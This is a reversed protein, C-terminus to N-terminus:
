LEEDRGRGSVTKKIKESQQGTVESITDKATNATEYAKGKVESAMEEAANATEYTKEKAPNTIDITEGAKEKVAGVTKGAKEAATDKMENAKGAAERAKETAYQGTGSSTDKTNKAADSAKKITSDGDHEDHKLGIKEKAWETWSESGEKGGKEEVEVVKAKGTQDNFEEFDRGEEETSPIHGVGSGSCLNALMIAVAIVLLVIYYSRNSAM